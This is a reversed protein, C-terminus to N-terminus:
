QLRVEARVTVADDRLRTPTGSATRGLTNDNYDYEVVLRAAELKAALALSLTRYSSDSPVVAGARKRSADADPDYIEYRVAAEAHRTFEQSVGVYAALERLERGTAIPDAVLLTRDLNVARVIEARLSLEGLLATRVGLRLDAGLASRE